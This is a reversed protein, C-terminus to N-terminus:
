SACPMGRKKLQAALADIQEKTHLASFAVRLRATNEPVTPPRIAAVLFGADELEQSLQMAKVSDGVLVPVIASQALPLGLLETFYQAHRLPKACREPEQQMIRLASISAALTAPPLATSYILSRASTKIYDM